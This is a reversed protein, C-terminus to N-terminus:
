TRYSSQPCTGGPGAARGRMASSTPNTAGTALGVMGSITMIMGAPADVHPVAALTAGSVSTFALITAYVGWLLIVPVAVYQAFRQVGAFGFYTNIIMVFALLATITGVAPLTVLGGAVDIIFKVTFLYFAMGNVVLLLSVLGSGLTGFISRAMVSHTQGTVAGANASGICYVSMMGVAILMAQALQALTLGQFRAGYGVLVAGFVAQMSLFQALMRVNSRRKELPVVFETYDAIDKETVSLILEVDEVLTSHHSASIVSANPPSIPQNSHYTM